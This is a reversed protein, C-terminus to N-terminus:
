LNFCLLDLLQGPDVPGEWLGRLGPAPDYALDRVQAAPVPRTLARARTWHVLLHVQGFRGFLFCRGSGARGRRELWTCQEPTFSRSLNLVRPPMRDLAKLEIWGDCGRAAWSLDPVGLQFRDEHRQADWRRGVRKSLTNWFRDEPGRSM